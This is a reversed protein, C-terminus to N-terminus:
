TSSVNAVSRKMIEIISQIRVSISYLLPFKKQFESKLVIYVSYLLTKISNLM